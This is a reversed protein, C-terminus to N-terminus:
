EDNRNGYLEIFVKVSKNENDELPYFFYIKNDGLKVYKSIDVVYKKDENAEAKFNFEKGNIVVKLEVDNDKNEVVIKAQKKTLYFDYIATNKDGESSLELPLLDITTGSYYHRFIEDFTRGAKAMGGAGYQSMGVGHGYGGGFAKIRVLNNDKDYEHEFVVNASPLAKGQNKFLRRIVLEKEVIFKEKDTVIEMTVIKGSKGRKIVKIEKLAGFDQPNKLEPYSYETKFAAPLGQKLVNELESKTWERTWRFYRSENEFAEFESMYFDKADKEKELSEIKKNDSVATLYPYIEGGKPLFANEYSETFGGSTSSYLAIILNDDYQGVMGRTEQVAQTALEMETNAGFYVQCAVSDCVDFEHIKKERPRLAYNRAAISQVKLAELGFRVPMENPVVGLLYTELDIMNNVLFMNEKNKPKVLEIEGRYLAPKGARKLNYIGILGDEETKLVLPSSVGSLVMQGCSYVDFLNNRIVVKIVDESIFEKLLKGTKKEILNLKKTAYFSNESYYYRQFANDSIGISIVPNTSVTQAVVPALSLFLSCLALLIKRKM